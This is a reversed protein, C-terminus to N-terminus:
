LLNGCLHGPTKTEPGPLCPSVGVSPGLVVYGGGVVAEQVVVVCGHCAFADAIEFCPGVATDSGGCGGQRHQGGEIGGGGCVKDVQIVTVRQAGM